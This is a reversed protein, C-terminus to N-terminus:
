PPRIGRTQHDKEDHSSNNPNLKPRSVFFRGGNGNSFGNTMVRPVIFIIPFAVAFIISTIATTFDILDTPPPEGRFAFRARRPRANSRIGQPTKFVFSSLVAFTRVRKPVALHKRRKNQRHNCKSPLHCLFTGQKKSFCPTNELFTPSKQPFPTPNQPIM